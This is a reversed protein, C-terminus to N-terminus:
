QQILREIMSKDKWMKIQKERALAESKSAFKETYVLKWDNTKGTFGKHKRNHKLLREAPNSSYGTYFRDLNVSYLIYIYYM